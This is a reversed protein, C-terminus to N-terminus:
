RRGPHLIKHAARCALHWAARAPYSIRRRRVYRRYARDTDVDVREGQQWFAIMRGIVRDTTLTPELGWCNDGRMRYGTRTLRIVRHLVNRGDPTEYLLVDGVRPEGVPGVAVPTEEGRLLPLMSTGTPTTVYVGRLRICEAKKNSAETM